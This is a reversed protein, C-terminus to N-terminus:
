ETTKKQKKPKNQHRIFFQWLKYPSDTAYTKRHRTAEGLANRVVLSLEFEKSSREHFKLM